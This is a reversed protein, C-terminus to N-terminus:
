CSTDMCEPLFRMMTEETVPEFRADRIQRGLATREALSMPHPTWAALVARLEELTNAVRWLRRDVAELPNMTLGAPKGIIVVPIGACVAELAASTGASVILRSAHLLEEFRGSEWCLHQAEDKRDALASRLADIGCSPHPRVRVADFAGATERVVDLVSHLIHLSEAWSHTLLVGLSQGEQARGNSRFLHAYRLAPVIRYLETDDYMAAEDRLARGCIWNEGPSVGAKIEAATTYQSLWNRIFSYQRVAVVRCRPQMREFALTTAKEFPQNEFWTIFWKPRVGAHYMRRPADLLLIPLLSDLATRFQPVWGLPSVDIGLFPTLPRQRRFAKRACVWCSRALDGPTVFLEFPIFAQASARIRRYLSAWRTFPIEFCAPYVSPRFGRSAYWGLLGPFYRRDNFEGTPSLDGELLFMGLLLDTAALRRKYESGLIWRVLHIRYLFATTRLLTRVVGKGNRIAHELRFRRAGVCRLGIHRDACLRRITELLALSRTVVVVERGTERDGAANAIVRLWCLHLVVNTAFPNKYLPSLIWEEGSLGTLNEDVWSVIDKRLSAVVEQLEAPAVLPERGQLVHRVRAFAACDEDAYLWPGPGLRVREVCSPHIVTLSV